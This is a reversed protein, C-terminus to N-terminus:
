QKSEKAKNKHKQQKACTAISLKKRLSENQLGGVENFFLSTYMHGRAFKAFWGKRLICGPSQRMSYLCIHLQMNTQSAQSAQTNNWM